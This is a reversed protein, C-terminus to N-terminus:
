VIPIPDRERQCLPRPAANVVPRIKMISSIQINKAFDALLICTENFDSLSLPSKVHLDIYM